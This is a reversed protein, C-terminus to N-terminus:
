KLKDAKRLEKEREELKNWMLKYKGESVKVLFGADELVNIAEEDASLCVDCIFEEDHICHQNLLGMLASILVTNGTRLAKIQDHLCQIKTSSKQTM